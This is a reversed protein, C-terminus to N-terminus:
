PESLDVLRDAVLIQHHRMRRQRTKFNRNRSLWQFITVRRTLSPHPLILNEESVRKSTASKLLGSPPMNM